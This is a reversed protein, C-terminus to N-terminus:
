VAFVLRRGRSHAFICWTKPAGGIVSGATHSGWEKRMWSTADTYRDFQMADVRHGYDLKWGKGKETVRMGCDALRRATLEESLHPVDRM